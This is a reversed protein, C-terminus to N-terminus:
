SLSKLKVITNVTGIPVVIRKRKFDLEIFLYFFFYTSPTKITKIRTYIYSMIYSFMVLISKLPVNFSDELQSEIYKFSSSEFLSLIHKDLWYM